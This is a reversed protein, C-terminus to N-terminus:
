RKAGRDEAEERREQSQELDVPEEQSEQGQEQTNVELNLESIFESAGDQQQFAGHFGDVGGVPELKVANSRGMGFWIGTGVTPLLIAALAIGTKVLRKRQEPTCRWFGERRMGRFDNLVMKFLSKEQTVVGMEAALNIGV